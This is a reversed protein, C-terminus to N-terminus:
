SVSIPSKEFIGRQLETVGVDKAQMKQVLVDAAKKPDFGEGCTFIDAAAYGYEPWTHICVHSEAIAVVGTVGQPSFKHFTHGIITAGTSQAAFILAEQIFPLDDLLEVNCSKLELLLHTGLAKM